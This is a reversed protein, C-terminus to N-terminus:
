EISSIKNNQGQVTSTISNATQTIQSQLETKLENDKQTITSTIGNATQEILSTM